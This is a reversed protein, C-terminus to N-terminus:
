SSSHRRSCIFWCISCRWHHYTCVDPVTATSNQEAVASAPVTGNININPPAWSWNKSKGLSGATSLTDQPSHKASKRPLRKLQSRIVAGHQMLGLAWFADGCLKQGIELTQAKCLPQWSCGQRWRNWRMSDSYRLVIGRGASQSESSATSSPGFCCGYLAASWGPKSRMNPECLMLMLNRRRVLLGWKMWCERSLPQSWLHDLRTDHSITVCPLLFVGGSKAACQVSKSQWIFPASCRLPLACVVLQLTAQSTMNHNLHMRLWLGWAPILFCLRCTLMVTLRLKGDFRAQMEKYLIIYWVGCM